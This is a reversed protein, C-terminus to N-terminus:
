TTPSALRTKSHFKLHITSPAMCAACVLLLLLWLPLVRWIQVLLMASPASIAHSALHSYSMLQYTEPSISSQLVSVPNCDPGSWWESGGHWTIGESTVYNEVEKKPRFFSTTPQIVDIHEHLHWPLSWEPARVFETGDEHRFVSYTTDLLEEIKSVPLKLWISDGSPSLAATSIGHDLLWTNVLDFSEDSPAILEKVEAASLYKGYRAHSPDSVENVHQELKDQNQHKLGIELDITHSSPARSIATWGRPVAHREKLVSSRSPVSPIAVAAGLLLAHLAVTPLYMTTLHPLLFM